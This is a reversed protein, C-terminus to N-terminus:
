FVMEFIDPELITYMDEGIYIRLVNNTGNVNYDSRFRGIKLYIM